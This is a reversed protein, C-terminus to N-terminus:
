LFAYYSDFILYKYEYSNLYYFPVCWNGISHYSLARRIIKAWCHQLDLPMIYLLVWKLLCDTRPHNPDHFHSIGIFYILAPVFSSCCFKGVFDICFLSSTLSLIFANFCVRLAIRGLGALFANAPAMSPTAPAMTAASASRLAPGGMGAVQVFQAFVSAFCKKLLWGQGAHTWHTVDTLMVVVFRSM